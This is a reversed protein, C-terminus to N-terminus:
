EVGIGWCRNKWDHDCCVVESRRLRAPIFGSAIIGEESHTFLPQFPSNVGEALIDSVQLGAQKKDGPCFHFQTGETTSFNEANDWTKDWVGVRLCVAPNSPLIAMISSGVPIPQFSVVALSRSLTPTAPIRAVYM